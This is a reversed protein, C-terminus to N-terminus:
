LHLIIIIQNEAFIMPGFNNLTTDFHRNIEQIHQNSRTLFIKTNNSVECAGVVALSFTAFLGYKQKPKNDLGYYRRLYTSELDLMKPIKSEKVGKYGECSTM